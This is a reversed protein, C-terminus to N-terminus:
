CYYYHRMRKYIGAVAIGGAVCVCAAVACCAAIAAVCWGGGVNAMEDMDMVTKNGIHKAAVYATKQTM